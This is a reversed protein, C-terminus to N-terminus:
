GEMLRAAAPSNRIHNQEPKNCMQQGARFQKIRKGLGKMDELSRKSGHEVKQM